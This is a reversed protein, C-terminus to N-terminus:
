YNGDVVGTVNPYELMRLHMEMELQPFAKIHNHILDVLIHHLHVVCYPEDLFTTFCASGCGISSCVCEREIYRIYLRTQESLFYGNRRDDVYKTKKDALLEEIFELSLEDSV